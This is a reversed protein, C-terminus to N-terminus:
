ALQKSVYKEPSFCHEATGFLDFAGVRHTKQDASNEEDATQNQQTLYTQLVLPFVRKIQIVGDTLQTRQKLALDRQIELSQSAHGDTEAMHRLFFNKGDQLFDIVIVGKQAHAQGLGVATHVEHVDAPVQVPIHIQGVLRKELLGERALGRKGSHAPIGEAGARHDVARHGYISFVPDAAHKHGDIRRINKQINEANGQEVILAHRRENVPAARIDQPGRGAPGHDAAPLPINEAEAGQFVGLPFLHQFIQPVVPAANKEVNRVALLIEGRVFRQVDVVPKQEAGHGRRGQRQSGVRQQEADAHDDAQGQQKGEKQEPADADDAVPIAAFKLAQGKHVGQGPCAVGIPEFHVSGGQHPM